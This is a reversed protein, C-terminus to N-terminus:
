PAPEAGAQLEDEYAVADFWADAASRADASALGALVDAGTEASAAIDGFADVDLGLRTLCRQDIPCPHVFAGLTGARFARSKDIMRPVWAYGGLTDDMAAPPEAALDKTRIRHAPNM